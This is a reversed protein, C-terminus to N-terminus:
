CYIKRRSGGARRLRLLAKREEQGLPRTAPYPTPARRFRRDIAAFSGAGGEVALELQRARHGRELIGACQTRREAAAEAARADCVLAAKAAGELVDDFTGAQTFADALREDEIEAFRRRGAALARSVFVGDEATQRMAQDRKSFDSFTAEIEARLAGDATVRPQREVAPVPIPTVDHPGPRRAM